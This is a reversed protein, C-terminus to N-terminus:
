IVPAGLIARIGNCMVGNAGKTMAEDYQATSQAIHGTMPKNLALFTDWTSQASSLQLNIWDWHTATELVGTPDALYDAEYFSGFSTYGRNAAEDATNVFGNIAKIVIHQRPNPIVEFQDYFEDYWAAGAHYKPDIFLVHSEGYTRIVDELIMYPRPGFNPDSIGVEPQIKYQQIEHWTAEEPNLDIGSTRLLTEDHLGFWVGDISRSVSVELADVDRAVSETYARMSMEAWDRSGGRHAITFGSKALLTDVSWAGGPMMAATAPHETVGDPDLVSWAINPNEVEGTYISLETM